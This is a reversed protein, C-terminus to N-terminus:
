AIVTEVLDVLVRRVPKMLPLGALRILAVVIELSKDRLAQTKAQEPSKDYIWFMIIGMQYMWLLGPLHPALDAPVKVRSGELARKFFETDGERIPRSAESFPSLADDPDAHAALAGLLRRSPAFYELKATMLGALRKKLDSGSALVEELKPTLDRQAQEYFALVIADKSPFYYYAAGVAVGARKAIERMTAAEFSQTRFLEVAAELIKARTDESKGM